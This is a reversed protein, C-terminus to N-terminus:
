WDRYKTGDLGTGSSKSYVDFVNQGGWTTSDPRDQYSRFGWDGGNTMPDSPIRRLYKLKRGTADNAAVVGEVLTELDSPYGESGPSLETTAILGTDVADKFKDIAMRMERLDRRLEAERQRQSTVQALPLVASALILLLTVVILLEVFTYGHSRVRWMQM